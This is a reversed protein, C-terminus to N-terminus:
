HQRIGFAEAPHLSDEPFKPKVDMPWNTQPETSPGADVVGEEQITPPAPGGPIPGMVSNRASGYDEAALLAEHLAKLSEKGEPPARVAGRLIQEVTVDDQYFKKNAEKREIVVNGEYTLGAFLGKSKVYSYVPSMTVTNGQRRNKPEQIALPEGNLEFAPPPSNASDDESLSTKRSRRGDRDRNHMSGWEISRGTGWPGAAVAVGAGLSFRTNMFASLAEQTNIVCVCDFLDVGAAVGAGFSQLQIASPPSWSGDHLRAIVIGSGTSEGLGLGVRLTTFIALGVAKQLIEPPIRVLKKESKSGNSSAPQLPLTSDSASSTEPSFPSPTGSAPNAYVGHKCFARLIRAAKDCEKEVTEGVFGAHNVKIALNTIGKNAKQSIEAFRSGWGKSLSGKRKRPAKGSTDTSSRPSITTSTLSSVSSSSTHQSSLPAFDAQPQVEPAAPAVATAFSAMTAAALASTSTRTSAPPTATSSSASSGSVETNLSPLPVRKRPIKHSPAPVFSEVQVPHSHLPNPLQTRHELSSYSPPQAPVEQPELSAAKSSPPSPPAETPLSSSPRYTEFPTTDQKENPPSPLQTSAGAPPLPQADDPFVCSYRHQAPVSSTNARPRPVPAAYLSVPSVPEPEYLDSGADDSPSLPSPPDIEYQDNQGPRQPLPPPAPQNAEDLLWNAAAQVNIGSGNELLGKQAEEPSFGYDVLQAVAHDFDM